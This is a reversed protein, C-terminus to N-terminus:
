SLRFKHYELVKVLKKGVFDMSLKENYCNYGNSAIQERKQPEDKMFLIADALRQPDAPPVLICNENNKLGSEIAAPSEMTILPKKSALIQFVKNTVVKQAKLTNGFIGLCVDSNKINELLDDKSILGILNMNKLNNKKILEEIEPKTQGDGCITFSIEKNNQLIIAAKVITEIGHLPIFSGFFLITFKDNSKDKSQPFFM